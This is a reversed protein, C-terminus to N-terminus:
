KPLNQMAMTEHCHEQHNWSLDESQADEVKSGM